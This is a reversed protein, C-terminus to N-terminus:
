PIPTLPILTLPILILPNSTLFNLNLPYLTPFLSLILSIRMYVDISNMCICLMGIIVKPELNHVIEFERIMATSLFGDLIPM